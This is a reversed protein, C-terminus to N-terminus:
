QVAQYVYCLLQHNAKREPTVGLNGIDADGGRILPPKIRNRGNQQCQVVLVILLPKLQLIRGGPDHGHWLLLPGEQIFFMEQWPQIYTLSKCRQHIQKVQLLPPRPAFVGSVWNLDSKILAGVLNRIVLYIGVQVLPLLSM